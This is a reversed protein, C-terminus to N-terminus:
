SLLEDILSFGVSFNVHGPFALDFIPINNITELIANLHQDM